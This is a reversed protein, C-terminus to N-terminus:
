YGFYEAYLEFFLGPPTVTDLLVHFFLYVFILVGLSLLISGLWRGGHFRYYLCIYLPLGFQLGLLYIILLIGAVWALAVMLAMTPVEKKAKGGHRAIAEQEAEDGEQQPRAARLMIIATLILSCLSVFVLLRKSEMPYPQVSVIIGLFCVGLVLAPIFSKRDINM